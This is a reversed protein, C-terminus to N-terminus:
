KPLRQNRNPCGSIWALDADQKLDKWSFEKDQRVYNFSSDRYFADTGKLRGYTVRQELAANYIWRIAAFQQDLKQQQEENPYLRYKYTKQIESVLPM